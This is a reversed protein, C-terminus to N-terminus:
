KINTIMARKITILITINILPIIVSNFALYQHSYTPINLCETNSQHHKSLEFNPIQLSEQSITIQINQKRFM